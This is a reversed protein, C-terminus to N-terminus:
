ETREMYRRAVRSAAMREHEPDGRLRQRLLYVHTERNSALSALYDDLGGAAGGDLGLELLLRKTAGESM